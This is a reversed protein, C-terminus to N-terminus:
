ALDIEPLECWAKLRNPRIKEFYANRWMGDYYKVTFVLNDNTLIGVRRDNDPPTSVDKWGFHRDLVAEIEAQQDFPLLDMLERAIASYRTTPQAPPQPGKAIITRKLKAM